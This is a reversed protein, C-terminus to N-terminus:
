LWTFNAKDYSMHVSSCFCLFTFPWYGTTQSHAWWERSSWLPSLVDTPESTINGKSYTLLHDLSSNSSKLMQARHLGVAGDAQHGPGAGETGDAQHGPGAGMKQGACGLHGTSQKEAHLELERGDTVQLTCRSYKPPPRSLTPSNLIQAPCSSFSLAPPQDCDFVLLLLCSSHGASGFTMWDNLLYKKLAQFFHVPTIFIFSVAERLVPFVYVIVTSCPTEVKACKVNQALYSHTIPTLGTRQLTYSLMRLRYNSCSLLTGQGYIHCGFVMETHYEPEGAPLVVGLQSGSSYVRNVAWTSVCLSYDSNVPPTEFGPCPKSSSTM